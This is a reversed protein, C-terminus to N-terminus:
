RLSVYPSLPSWPVGAGNRWIRELTSESDQSFQPMQIPPQTPQAFISFQSTDVPPPMTFSPGTTSPPTTTTTPEPVLGALGKGLITSGAQLFLAELPSPTASQKQNYQELQLAAERNANLIQAGQSRARMEADEDAAAGKVLADSISGEANTSLTNYAAMRAGVNNRIAPNNQLDRYEAQTRAGIGRAAANAANVGSTSNFSAMQQAVADLTPARPDVIPNDERFLGAIGSAALSGAAAILAPIM